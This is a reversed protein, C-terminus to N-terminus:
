DQNWKKAKKKFIQLATMDLTVVLHVDGQFQKWDGKKDTPFNFTPNGVFGGDIVQGVHGAFNNQIGLNKTVGSILALVGATGNGDLKRSGEVVISEDPALTM